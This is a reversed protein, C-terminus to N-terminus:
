TLFVCPNQLVSEAIRVSNLSKHRSHANVEVLEGAKWVGGMMEPATPAPPVAPLPLERKSDSVSPRQLCFHRLGEGLSVGRLLRERQAGRQSNPAAVAFGGGVAGVSRNRFACAAVGWLQVGSCKWVPSGLM